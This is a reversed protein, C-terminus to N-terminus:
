RKRKKLINLSKISKARHTPRITGFRTNRSRQLCFGIDVLAVLTTERREEVRTALCMRLDDAQQQLGPHHHVTGAPITRRGQDNRNLFAGHFSSQQEQLRLCVRAFGCSRSCGRQECCGEVAVLLDQAQQDCRTALTVDRPAERGACRGKGLCLPTGPLTGPLEQFGEFVPPRLIEFVKVLSPLLFSVAASVSRREGGSGRSAAVGRGCGPLLM